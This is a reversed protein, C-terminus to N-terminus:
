LPQVKLLATTLGALQAADRLAQSPNEIVAGAGSKSASLLLQLMPQGIRRVARGDVVMPRVGVAAVFAPLLGIVAERDCVQPLCIDTM